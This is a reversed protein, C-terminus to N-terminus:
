HVELQSMFGNLQALSGLIFPVILYLGIVLTMPMYAIVKGLAGKESIQM